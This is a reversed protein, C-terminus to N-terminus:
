DNVGHIELYPHEEDDDNLKVRVHKGINAKKRLEDPLRVNNYQDVFSLEERQPQLWSDPKIDGIARHFGSIQGDRIRYAAKTMNEFRHDHTVVVMTKGFLENLEKFYDIIKLSNLTDLEGTPEDALILPPDNALAVALGVRQAEGGSLQGPKHTARDKLGIASLLENVRKKRLERPYGSTIMPFEIQQEATLGPLLNREPLQWLFGVMNRRFDVLEQEPISSRSLVHDGIKLYGSSVTDIAGFLNMLTSKGAGSPGIIAVLSGEKVMLEIGRLAALKIDKREDTYIKMIDLAEIFM